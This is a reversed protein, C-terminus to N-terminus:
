DQFGLNCLFSLLMFLSHFLLGGWLRRAARDQPEPPEFEDAIPLQHSVSDFHM